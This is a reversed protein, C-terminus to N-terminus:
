LLGKAKLVFKSNSIKQPSVGFEQAMEAISKGGAIIAKDIAAQTEPSTRHGKGGTREGVVIANPRATGRTAFRNFLAQFDAMSECGFQKPLLTLRDNVEDWKASEKREAEEAETKALNAFHEGLLQNGKVKDAIAASSLLTLIEAPVGALAAPAVVSNSAASKTASAVVSAASKASPVSKNDNSMSMNYEIQVLTLSTPLPIYAM